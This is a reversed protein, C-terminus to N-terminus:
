KINYYVTLSVALRGSRTGYGPIYWPRSHTTKGYTHLWHYRLMWGM